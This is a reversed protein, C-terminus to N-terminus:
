EFALIPVETAYAVLEAASTAIDVDVYMGGAENIDDPNPGLQFVEVKLRAKRRGSEATVTFQTHAPETDLTFTDKRKGNVTGHLMSLQLVIDGGVDARDFGVLVTAPQGAPLTRPAALVLRRQITPTDDEETHAPANADYEALEGAVTVGNDTLRYIGVEVMAAYGKTVLRKIAKSFGRDSLGTGACISEVDSEEGAEHFFRLVDLAEPPLTQLHFPLEM